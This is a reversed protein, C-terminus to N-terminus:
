LPHRAPRLLDLGHLPVPYAPRFANLHGEGVQVLFAADGNVGGARVRQHAGGVKGQRRLVGQSNCRRLALRLQGFEQFRAVLHLHCLCVHGLQFLLAHIGAKFHLVRQGAFGQWHPDGVEHQHLVARPRDHGHRPMVLAVPLKGLLIAQRNNLHNCGQRVTLILAVQVLLGVKGVADRHVGALKVAQAKLSGEVGYRIGQGGLLQPLPLHVIPQPIPPHRPLAVPAAGYRDDVAVLAAGQRHRVLVQWHAQRGIHLKVTDARRQLLHLLPVLSAARAAAACRHPLSVGKVGKHLRGPIGGPKSGALRLGAHHILPHAIPTHYILIHTPLLM